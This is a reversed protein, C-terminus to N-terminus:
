AEAAVNGLPLRAKTVGFLWCLFHSTTTTAATATSSVPIRQHDGLAMVPEGAAVSLVPALAAGVLGSPGVVVHVSAADVKGVVHDAHTRM